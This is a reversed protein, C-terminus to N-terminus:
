ALMLKKKRKTGRSKTENGYSLVKVSLVFFFIIKITSEHLEIETDNCNNLKVKLSSVGSIEGVRFYLFFLNFLKSM